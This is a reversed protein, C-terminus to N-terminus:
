TFNVILSQRVHFFGDFSRLSRDDSKQETNKEAQNKQDSRNPTTVIKIDSPLFFPEHSPSDKVDFMAIFAIRTQRRPGNQLHFRRARARGSDHGLQGLARAFTGREVPSPFYHLCSRM